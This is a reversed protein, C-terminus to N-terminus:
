VWNIVSCKLMVKDCGDRDAVIFLVSTTYEPPTFYDMYDKIDYGLYLPSYFEYTEGHEDTITLAMYGNENFCFLGDYISGIPPSEWVEYTGLYKYNMSSRDVIDNLIEEVSNQEM